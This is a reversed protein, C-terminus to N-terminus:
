GKGEMKKLRGNLSAVAALIPGTAKTTNVMLGEPSDEVMTSGIESKLLDQAMVGAKQGEGHKKDKYKFKYGTLSDLFDSPDFDEVDEKMREDSFMSAVTLATGASQNNAAAQNQSNQGAIGANTQAVGSQAGRKALQNNFNQQLLGKNHQQQANRAGVNMDAVGQKVALNKAAADNRAAVNQNLQSQQNQANFRSIADNAGAVQSQQNFDQSQINGALNGQQMLADLARQQAMGAVDLDRASKRSASEQQNLMQSMLEVGSGGAGRANANQIIAERKGRAAADEESQIKSLNAKDMMTMGGSDSIDSLSSLANMQAEKLKPDLSIGNMASQEQSITAAQEPSLAGQQILQELQLTLADVDPAELDAYHDQITPASGSQM